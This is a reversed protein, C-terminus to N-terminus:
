QVIRSLTLVAAVGAGVVLTLGALTLQRLRKDERWKMELGERVHAGRRCQVPRHARGPPGSGGDRHKRPGAEAFFQRTQVLHILQAVLSHLCMTAADAAMGPYISQMARVMMQQIPEVMEQIFMSPPLQPDSMERNFISDDGSRARPGHSAEPLFRCLGSSGKRYRERDQKMWSRASPLSGSSGYAASYRKSFMSTSARNTALTITSPPWMVIPPRQSTAYRRPLTGRRPGSAHRRMWCGDLLRTRSRDTSEPDPTIVM